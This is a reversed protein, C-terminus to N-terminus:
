TSDLAKVDIFDIRDSHPIQGTDCYSTNVRPLSEFIFNYIEYTWYLNILKNNFIFELIEEIEIKNSEFIVYLYMAISHDYPHLKNKDCDFHWLKLLRDKILYLNEQGISAFNILEQINSDSKLFILFSETNNILALRAFFNESEIEAFLIHISKTSM